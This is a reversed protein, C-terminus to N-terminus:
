KRKDTNEHIKQNLLQQFSDIPLEFPSAEFDISDMIEPKAKLPNPVEQDVWSSRGPMLFTIVYLVFFLILIIIWKFQREQKSLKKDQIDARRMWQKIKDRM